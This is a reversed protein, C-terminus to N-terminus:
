EVISSDIIVFQCIQKNWTSSYFKYRINNYINYALCWLLTLPLGRGGRSLMSPALKFKYCSSFYLIFAFHQLFFFKFRNWARYAMFMVILNIHLCSKINLIAERYLLITSPVNYHGLLAMCRAIKLTANQLSTNKWNQVNAFMCNILWASLNECIHLCSKINLVAERYLM